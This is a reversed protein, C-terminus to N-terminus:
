LLFGGPLRIRLWVGFVAYLVAFFVGTYLLLRLPKRNGLYFSLGGVYLVTTVCYGVVPLLAIYLVTAGTIVLKTRTLGLACRWKEAEPLSQDAALARYERVSLVFVWLFLPITVFTVFRPFVVSEAPLTRASAWYVAVFVLALVAFLYRKVVFRLYNM